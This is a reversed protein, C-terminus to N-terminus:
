LGSIKFGEILRKSAGAENGQGCRAQQADLDAQVYANMEQITDNVEEAGTYLVDFGHYQAGATKQM